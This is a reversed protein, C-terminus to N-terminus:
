ALKVDQSAFCVSLLGSILTHTITCVQIGADAFQPGSTSPFWRLRMALPIFSDKHVSVKLLAHVVDYQEFGTQPDMRTCAPCDSVAEKMSYPFIQVM